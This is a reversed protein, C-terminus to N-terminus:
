RAAAGGTTFNEDAGAPAEPMSDVLAQIMQLAISQAGEFTVIRGLYTLSPKVHKFDRRELFKENEDFYYDILGARLLHLVDETSWETEGKGMLADVNPYYEELYRLATLNYRLYMEKGDLTFPIKGPELDKLM